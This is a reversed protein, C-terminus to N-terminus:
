QPRITSRPLWLPFFIHIVNSHRLSTTHKCKSIYMLLFPVTWDKNVDPRRTDWQGWRSWFPAPLFAERVWPGCDSPCLSKSFLFLLTPAWCNWWWLFISALDPYPKEWGQYQGKPQIVPHRGPSKGGPHQCCVSAEGCTGADDRGAHPGFVNRTMSLCSQTPLFGSWFLVEPSSVM